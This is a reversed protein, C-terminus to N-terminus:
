IITWLILKSLCASVFAAAATTIIGIGDGYNRYQMDKYDLAAGVLLSAYLATFFGFAFFGILLGSIIHGSHDDDRMWDWARKILEKM